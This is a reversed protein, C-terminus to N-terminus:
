VQLQYKPVHVRIVGLSTPREVDVERGVLFRYENSGQKTIPTERHMTMMRPEVDLVFCSMPRQGFEFAGCELAVERHWEM